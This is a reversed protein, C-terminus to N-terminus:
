KLNYYRQLSIGVWVNIQFYLNYRWMHYSKKISPITKWAFWISSYIYEYYKCKTLFKLLWLNWSGTEMEKLFERNFTKKQYIKWILFTTWHLLHYLKRWMINQRRVVGVPVQQKHVGLVEIEGVPWTGLALRLSPVLTEKSYM